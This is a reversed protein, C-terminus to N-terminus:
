GVKVKNRVNSDSSIELSDTYELNEVECKSILTIDKGNLKNVKTNRLKINDGEITECNLRGLSGMGFSFIRKFIDMSNNKDVIISTAGIENCRSIGKPYIFINEGTLLGNCNVQGYIKIEDAEINGDTKIEGYIKLNRALLAEKLKLEGRITVNNCELTGNVRLDGNIVLTDIKCDGNIVAEGNVSLKNAKVNGIVDCDGNVKFRKANIKGKFRAEGNIKLSECIIDGEGNASGMVSVKDYTGQSIYGEGAITVNNSM